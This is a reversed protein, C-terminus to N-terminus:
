WDIGLDLVQGYRNQRWDFQRSFLSKCTFYTSTCEKTNEGTITDLGGLQLANCLKEPFVKCLEKCQALALYPWQDKTLSTALVISKHLSKCLETHVSYTACHKACQVTVTHTHMTCPLTVPSAPPWFLQSTCVKVLNKVCDAHAFSQVNTQM